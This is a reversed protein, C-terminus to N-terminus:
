QTNKNLDREIDGAVSRLVDPLGKLLEPPAHCSFGNGLNGEFVILVVATAQARERVLTCLDDYKGPGMAM